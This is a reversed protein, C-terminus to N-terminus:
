WLGAKFECIINLASLIMNNMQLKTLGPQYSFIWLPEEASHM